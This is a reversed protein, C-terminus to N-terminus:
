QGTPPCTAMQVTDANIWIAGPGRSENFTARPINSTSVRVWNGRVELVEPITAQQAMIPIM